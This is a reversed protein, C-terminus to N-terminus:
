LIRINNPPNPKKKAVTGSKLPVQAENFAEQIIAPSFTNVIRDLISLELNKFEQNRNEPLANFKNNSLKTNNGVLNM